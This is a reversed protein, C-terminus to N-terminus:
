SASQKEWLRCWDEIVKQNTLIPQKELMDRAFSAKGDYRDPANQWNDWCGKVFAKAAHRPDGDRRALAGARALASRAAAGTKEDNLAEFRGLEYGADWMGEGNALDFADYAEHILDLPVAGCGAATSADHLWLLAIALVLDVDKFDGLFGVEAAYKALESKARILGTENYMTWAGGEKQSYGIATSMSRTYENDGMIGLETGFRVYSAGRSCALWYQRIAIAFLKELQQTYREALDAYTKVYKEGIKEGLNSVTRTVFIAKPLKMAAVEALSTADAKEIAAEHRKYFDDDM